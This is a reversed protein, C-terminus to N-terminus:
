VVLTVRPTVPAAHVPRAGRLRVIARLVWPYGFFVYGLVAACALLVLLAAM